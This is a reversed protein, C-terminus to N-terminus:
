PKQPWPPIQKTEGPNIGGLHKRIADYRPHGPPYEFYADGVTNPNDPEEARLFVKIVGDSTMEAVGISQQDKMEEEHKPCGSITVLAIIISFLRM